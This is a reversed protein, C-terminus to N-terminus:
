RRVKPSRFNARGGENATGGPHCQYCRQDSCTFNTVGTHRPTVASCGGHCTFCGPWPTSSCSRIELPSPLVGHCRACTIGAHNGAAIPFCRDHGSFSAPSWRWFSHCGLCNMNPYGPFGAHSMGKSAATALDNAHCTGCEVTPRAYARDRRDGHCEECPILAHRGQLPFNTRRHADADFRSRWGQTDHCAECHIGSYGAHVDRHCSVCSRGLPEKFDQVHCKRCAVVGHQGTLPFGTREHIFKVNGWGETTHCAGCKTEGPGAHPPPDAAPLGAVPVGVALLAALLVAPRIARNV